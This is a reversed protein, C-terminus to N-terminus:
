GYTSTSPAGQAPVEICTSYRVGGLFFSSFFSGCYIELENTGEPDGGSCEQLVRSDDTRIRNLQEPHALSLHLPQTQLPRDLATQPRMGHFDQVDAEAASEDLRPSRWSDPRRDFEHRLHLGVDPQLTEHPPTLEDPVFVLALGRVVDGDAIGVAIEFRLGHEALKEDIQQSARDLDHLILTLCGDQVFEPM